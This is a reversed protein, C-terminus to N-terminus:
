YASDFNMSYKATVIGGTKWEQFDEPLGFTWGDMGRWPDHITLYRWRYGHARKRQRMTMM